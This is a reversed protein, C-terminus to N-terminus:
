ALQSPSPPDLEIPAASGHACLGAEALIAMLGAHVTPSEDAEEAIPAIKEEALRRVSQPLESQETSFAFDM